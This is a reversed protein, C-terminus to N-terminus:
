PSQYAPPPPLQLADAHRKCIRSQRKLRRTCSHAASSPAFATSSRTSRATTWSWRAHPKRTQWTRRTREKGNRQQNSCRGPRCWACLARAAVSKELGSGLTVAAQAAPMLFASSVLIRLLWAPALPKEVPARAEISYARDSLSASDRLSPTAEPLSM